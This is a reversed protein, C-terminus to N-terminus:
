GKPPTRTCRALLKGLRQLLALDTKELQDLQVRIKSPDALRLLQFVDAASTPDPMPSPDLRPEGGGM